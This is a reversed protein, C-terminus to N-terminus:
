QTFSNSKIGMETVFQDLSDEKNLKLKQKIRYRAMRISKPDVNIRSAIEKNSLGMLIYSCYKLDLRTLNNGAREQLGAFFGPRIEAFESKIDGYERDIENNQQILRNIQRYLPDGKDLSVLKERLNGVLMNKEEVQLTGALLERELRDMHEQMLEREAHLRASEEAKLSAQLEAENREGILLLHQQQSAKVKFHYSRYLFFLTLLGVCILLVYFRNLQRNFTAEKRAASIALEKKDSQYRAELQQVMSAKEKDFVERYFKLYMKYYNLAKAPDGSQESVRALANSIRSNVLAGSKPSNSIELMALELLKEAQGYDGGMMAYESLIGYSNAIIEPHDVERATELAQDIYLKASDAYSYPYFEFFLNAMNLAAAGRNSRLSIYGKMEDALELVKRNYYTSSDLLERRSTDRRFQTLYSSGMSLYANVLADPDRSKLATEMCLLSYHLQKEPEQWYAHIAALYHYINSEYAYAHQNDLLHLAELMKDYAMDNENLIYDLWGRRFLVYGRTRAHDTKSAYWAASDMAQIALTISDRQVYLYGLISHIYAGYRADEEAWSLRLAEEATDFAEGHGSQTAMIKSLNGLAEIRTGSSKEESIVTKLSDILISQGQLSYSLYFLNLIVLGISYFLKGMQYFYCISGM